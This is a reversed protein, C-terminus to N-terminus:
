TCKILGGYSGFSKLNLELQMIIIPVTDLRPIYMIHLIYALSIKYSLRLLKFLMNCGYIHILMIDVSTSITTDRETHSTLIKKITERFPLAYSIICVAPLRVQILRGLNGYVDQQTLRANVGKLCHGIRLKNM